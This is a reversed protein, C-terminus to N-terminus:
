TGGIQEILLGGHECHVDNSNSNEVWMAIEETGNPCDIIANDCMAGSDNLNAITRHAEGAGEQNTTDIRIGAHIESNGGGAAVHVSLSWVVKYKGPVPVALYHETGGTPFTVENLAGATWGDGGTDALEHKNTDSIAVILESALFMCGFVTGSDENEWFLDGYMTDGSRSVKDSLRSLVDNQELMELAAIRDNLSKIQAMAAPEDKELDELRQGLEKTQATLGVLSSDEDDGRKWLDLILQYFFRTPHGTDEIWKSWTFPADGRAM